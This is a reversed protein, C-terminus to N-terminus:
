QEKEASRKNKRYEAWRKRAAAAIRAKGAASLVRKPARAAASRRARQPRGSLMRRLQAIKQELDNRKQELGLLAAELVEKDLTRPPM